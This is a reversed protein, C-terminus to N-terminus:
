PWFDPKVPSGYLRCDMCNIEPTAFFKVIAGFAGTEFVTTPYLDGNAKLSESNNDIVFETCQQKYGWNPLEDNSIFLRESQKELSVEVFGIVTESPTTICHINGTLESPLPGTISGIEESNTKLIKLYDYADKSLAYQDVIISYLVSLKRSQPEISMIPFYILNRSLKESSGINVNSSPLNLWCRYLAIDPSQDQNRYGVGIPIPSGPSYAYQLSSYYTSNIEWTEEYKWYYYGPQNQDDHTNIYIKVGSNDRTWSLSDIDPTTRYNSYDSAYEKGDQTKINLRYKENSNLQLPSSTYVGGGTEYLPFSENNQGEISVIASHENVDRVTDYLKITRTISISTTGNGNIFGEVVLYGTKPSKVPPRFEDKCSIITIFFLLIVLSVPVKM